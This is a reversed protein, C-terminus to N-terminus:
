PSWCSSILKNRWGSGQDAWDELQFITSDMNLIDEWMRKRVWQFHGWLYHRVLERTDRWAALKVKSLPCWLAASFLQVKWVILRENGQMPNLTQNWLIWLRRHSMRWSAIKRGRGGLHQSKLSHRWSWVSDCSWIRSEWGQKLSKWQTVLWKDTIINETRPQRNVLKRGAGRGKSFVPIRLLGRWVM